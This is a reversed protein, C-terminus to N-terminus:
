VEASSWVMPIALVQDVGAAIEIVSPGRSAEVCM